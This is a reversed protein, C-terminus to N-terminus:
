SRSKNDKIKQKSLHVNFIVQNLTRVYDYLQDFLLIYLSTGNTQQESIIM